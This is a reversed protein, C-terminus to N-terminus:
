FKHVMGFIVETVDTDKDGAAKNFDGTVFDAAGYVYTRKSLNYVYGAAVQYVKLEPKDGTQVDSQEGEGYGVAFKATGGFVPVDAGLNVGFGEMTNFHGDTAGSASLPIVKGFNTSNDFYQGNLYTKVVGFDYTAGLTVTLADDDYSGATKGGQLDTGEYKHSTYNISDVVAIAELAGAKYKAGIGYYRNVSSKGETGRKTNEETTANYGWDNTQTDNDFSYQAFLTFGAFTPTKYTVMNDFRANTGGFVAVNGGVSGWGTSFPHINSGMLAYDGAGSALQGVRGFSVHGFAGEVFLTSQRGFIRDDFGLTGDDGNIGSELVFGVKMGNGLDETGKLGFRSGANQGSMMQFTNTDDGRDVSKNQYSFGYDLLGYLTVDAAFASGAFAGLIAAAALTKKFM